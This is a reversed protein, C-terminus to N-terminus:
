HLQRVFVISGARRAAEQFGQGSYFRYAGDNKIQTDLRYAPVGAKRLFGEFAEVLARGIGKGQIEHDVAIATLVAKVEVSDVHVPAAIRQGQWWLWILSPHRLARLVIDALRRLSLNRLLRSQLAGADLSGSVVGATRGDALAVGVYCASDRAMSEYLFRMHDRGLRSNLTYGLGANHIRLVEEILDDSLARIVLAPAENM